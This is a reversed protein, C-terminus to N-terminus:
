GREDGRYIEIVYRSIAYLLMYLWFTRGPFTRGRRGTALLVVLIIAEAGADYLQTPHLPVQLPTGVNGRRGSRHVHDGM